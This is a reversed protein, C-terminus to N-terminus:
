LQHCFEVGVEKEVGHRFFTSGGVEERSGRGVFLRLGGGGNQCNSWQVGTPLLTKLRKPAGVWDLLTPFALRTLGFPIVYTAFSASFIFIRHRKPCGRPSPVRREATMWWVISFWRGQDQEQGISSAVEWADKRRNNLGLLTESLRREVYEWKM